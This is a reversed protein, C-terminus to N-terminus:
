LLRHTHNYSSPFIGLMPQPAATPTAESLITVHLVVPGSRDFYCQHKWCQNVAATNVNCYHMPHHLRKNLQKCDNIHWDFHSNHCRNHVPLDHLSRWGWPINPPFKTVKLESFVALYLHRLTYSLKGSCYMANDIECKFLINLLDLSVLWPSCLM